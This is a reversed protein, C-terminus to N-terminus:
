TQENHKLKRLDTLFPLYREIIMAIFYSITLSLICVVITLMYNKQVSVHNMLTGCAAPMVGSFFYFLISNKGIFEIWHVHKMRKTLRILFLTSCIMAIFGALNCIGGLGISRISHTNWTSIIIAAYIFFIVLWGYKLITEIKKEYLYYIGGLTMIFTYVLGTKYFWPFFATADNTSRNLNLYIGLGFLLFTSLVYMWIKKFRFLILLILIIQAVVLASTFWYSIGGFVDYFYRGISVEASHFLVKPLYILSSFLITPVLLRYFLNILDKKAGGWKNIYTYQGEAIHKKFFLYGSVFFFANVYFPILLYGFSTGGTDYYAESHLLYVSIMCIAKVADIWFSREQLQGKM